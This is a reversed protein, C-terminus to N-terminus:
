RLYVTRIINALDERNLHSLVNLFETLINVNHEVHYKLHHLIDELRNNTSDRTERDRM